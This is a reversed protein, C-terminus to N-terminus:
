AYYVGPGVYAGPRLFSSHYFLPKPADPVNFTTNGTVATYSTGSMPCTVYGAVSTCAGIPQSETYVFGKTGKLWALQLTAAALTGFM